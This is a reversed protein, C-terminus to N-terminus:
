GAVAAPLICSKVVRGPWGRSIHSRVASWRPLMVLDRVGGVPDVVAFTPCVSDLIVVSVVMVVPLGAASVRRSVNRDVAVGSAVSVGKVVERVSLTAEVARAARRRTPPGIVIAHAALPAAGSEVMEVLLAFSRPVDPVGFESLVCAVLRQILWAGSHCLDIM